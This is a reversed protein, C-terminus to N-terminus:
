KKNNTIHSVKTRIRIQIGPDTGSVEPDHDPEPDVGRVMTEPDPDQLGFFM